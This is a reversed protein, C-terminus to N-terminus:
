YKPENNKIVVLTLIKGGRVRYYNTMILPDPLKTKDYTGDYKCQM